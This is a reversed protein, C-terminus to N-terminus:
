FAGVHLCVCKYLSFLPPIVFTLDFFASSVFYNFSHHCKIMCQEAFDAEKAVITQQLRICVENQEDLEKRTSKLDWMLKVNETETSEQADVQQKQDEFAASIQMWLM